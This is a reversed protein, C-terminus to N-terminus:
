FTSYDKLLNHAIMFRSIELARAFYWGQRQSAFQFFRAHNALRKRPSTHKNEASRIKVGSGM